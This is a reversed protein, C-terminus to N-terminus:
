YLGGAISRLEDPTSSPFGFYELYAPIQELLMDAGVQVRCGRAQAAKLFPTLDSKLVVEGVYAGPRIREVDLPMPDSDQMGIPTANIVLDHGQPDRSGTTVRVGPYNETLRRALGQAMADNVDFLAMDGVGAGALSAAIASGVGGCGAILVSAGSPAFGKRRIGNVFGTGDFIEGQLRGDELRRVANCAGAVRVAPSAEDILGVTTMKHPMTILAGRINTLTFVSKLFAPYDDARCGMPMVVANIGKAEFFPNYIRPSKFTYTPYGIHAILDTNGDIM